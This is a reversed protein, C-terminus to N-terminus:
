RTIHQYFDRLVHEDTAADTQVELLFPREGDTHLLWNVAAPLEEENSVCRYSVGCQECIGRASTYHEAMVLADRAPSQELGPLTRFISGGSNNLLLIRLNGGIARNWLANQDYFFSLDGIVCITRGGVLSYGAATSLSGEIGNVGRNVFIPARHLSLALRVASSNAVHWVEKRAARSLAKVAAFSSFAPSYSDIRVITECALRQWVQLYAETDSGQRALEDLWELVEAAPAEVVDTCRLTPDAVQGDANVLVIRAGEAQQLFQKMRKSVFSGGIYIITDPRYEEWKDQARLLMEDINRMSHGYVESLVPFPYHRRMLARLESDTSYGVCVLLRPSGILGCFLNMAEASLGARHLTIPKVEPLQPSDFSFLPESIPVNIHVPGGEGRRMEVLAENILRICWARETADKPEPLLVARRVMRGLADPQPLTQGLLQDIQHAPRDASIFVVPAHQYFAESAAPALNLLASGSTVCVAVPAQLALSLGLAYFGASREDTVPHCQMDPCVSLNHVIPANRSGPCVVAHRVGHALLMATLIGVNEKNSYM